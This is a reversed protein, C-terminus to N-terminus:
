QGYNEAMKQEVETRFSEGRIEVPFLAERVIEVFKQRYVGPVKVGRGDIHPGMKMPSLNCTVIVVRRRQFRYRLISEIMREINGGADHHEAGLDDLVLVDVNKAREQWSIDTDFMEGNLIKQILDSVEVYLCSYGRRRLEMGVIAVAASKGVGYDGWVLLGDGRMYTGDSLYKRVVEQGEGQIRAFRADWFRQPLNM